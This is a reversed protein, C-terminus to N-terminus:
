FLFAEQLVFNEFYKVWKTSPIWTWIRSVIPFSDQCLFGIGHFFICCLSLLLSSCSACVYSYYSADCFISHFFSSDVQIRPLRIM